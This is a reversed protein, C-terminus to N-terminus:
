KRAGSRPEPAPKAPASQKCENLDHACGACPSRGASIETYILPGAVEPSLKCGAPVYGQDIMMQKGLAGKFM